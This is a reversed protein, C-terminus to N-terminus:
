NIRLDNVYVDIDRAASIFMSLFGKVRPSKWQIKSGNVIIEATVKENMKLSYPTVVM